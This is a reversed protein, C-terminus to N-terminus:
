SGDGKPKLVTYKHATFAALGSLGESRLRQVDKEHREFLDYPELEDQSLLVVRSTWKDQALAAAQVEEEDFTGTKSFVIYTRVRRRPLADAVKGLNTTDQATIRGGRSKCEGIVVEPVNPDVHTPGTRVVVFDTECRDIAAGAPELNLSTTYVM